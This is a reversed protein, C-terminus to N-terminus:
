RVEGACRFGIDDEWNTPEYRSRSSARVDKSDLAWSGGRLVRQTGTSPGMPDTAPSTTYYEFSSWDAVWEWVNGLMDYLGFENAQKQGVDHTKGGSNGNYWAIKNLDGFRAATFGARAAYEWEAETPLRMGVAECYAKAQDWTVRETPLRPGKFNSPNKGMVRQYADQTVPMQGIWFGGTITVEHPPSEDTYCESDGASCGMTFKGPPIWVYTLGDKPNVRTQGTTLATGKGTQGGNRIIRALMLYYAAAGVLVALVAAAIWRWLLSLPLAKFAPSTEVGVPLASQAKRAELIGQLGEVVNLFGHDLTEWDVVPKANVPLVQFKGLPSSLWDCPRLIVPVVLAEGRDHRELARSMVVEYCFKSALFDASVLLLVINASKLDEDIQGVWDSGATIWRSDLLEVGSRILPYLHKLFEEFLDGDKHTYSVFLKLRPMTERPTVSEPVRRPLNRSREPAAPIVSAQPSAAATGVERAEGIPKTRPAAADGPSTTVPTGPQREANAIRDQEAKRAAEADVRVVSRTGSGDGVIQAPGGSPNGVLERIDRCLKVFGASAGDGLWDVLDAAEIQRFGWPPRVSELFVPVLIRRKKGEEAEDIVWDKKISVASWLVLICHASGIEEEIVDSFRKGARIDRDWWVSWGEAELAKAIAAARQRDESAYSLFIDSV